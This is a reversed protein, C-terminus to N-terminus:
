SWTESKLSREMLEGIAQRVPKGEFLVCGVERAIPLEVGIQEALEVAARATGVGEAVSLRRGVVADLTRGRKVLAALEPSDPAFTADAGMTKARARKHELPDVVGVWKLGFLKAFVRSTM